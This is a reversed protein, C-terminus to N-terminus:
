LYRSRRRLLDHWVGAGLGGALATAILGLIKSLLPGYWFEPQRWVREAVQARATFKSNEWGLPLTGSEIPISLVSPTGEATTRRGIPVQGELEAQAVASMRLHADAYLTSAIEIADVNLLAALVLAVSFAAWRTRRRYFGSCRAMASDFWCEIRERAQELDAADKTLTRLAQGIEGNLGELKSRFTAADLELLDLMVCAFSRATLYSPLRGSKSQSRILGHQYFRHKLEPGLMREVFAALLKGRQARASELFDVAAACAFSFGAFGFVFGLVVELVVSGFM